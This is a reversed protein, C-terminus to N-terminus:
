IVLTNLERNSGFMIIFYLLLVADIDVNEAIPVLLKVRHIHGFLMTLNNQVQQQNCLPLLLMIHQNLIKISHHIILSLILVSLIEAYMTELTETCFLYNVLMHGITHYYITLLSNPHRLLLFICELELVVTTLHRCWKNYLCIKLSNSLLYLSALSIASFRVCVFIM